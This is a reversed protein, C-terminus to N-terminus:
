KKKVLKNPQKESAEEDYYLVAPAKGSKKFATRIGRDKRNPDRVITGKRSYWSGKECSGRVVRDKLIDKDFEIKELSKSIGYFRNYAM